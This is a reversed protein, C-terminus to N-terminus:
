RPVIPRSPWDSARRAVANPGSTDRFAKTLAPISHRAGAAIVVGSFPTFIRTEPVGLGQILYPLAKACTKPSYAFLETVARRVGGDPDHIATVAASFVPGDLPFRSLEAVAYCRIAPNSDHLLSLRHEVTNVTPAALFGFRLLPFPEDVRPYEWGSFAEWIPRNMADLRRVVCGAQYCSKPIDTVFYSGDPRRHFSADGHWSPFPTPPDARFWSVSIVKREADCDIIHRYCDLFQWGGKATRRYGHILGHKPHATTKQVLAGTQNYELFEAFHAQSGTIVFLRGNPLLEACGVWNAFPPLAYRATGDSGILRVEEGCEQDARNKKGWLLVLTPGGPTARTQDLPCDQRQQKWWQQWCAYCADREKKTCGRLLRNPADKGAAWRLLEEAQWSVPVPSQRVLAILPPIANRDDAALLGQAARLRVLYDPDALARQRVKERQAATGRRGIICAAVTRRAPAPEGLARVLAGPMEQNPGIFRDLAYYIEEEVDADKTHPLLALFVEFAERPKRAALVRVVPLTWDEEVSKAVADLCAKARRATEPDAASTAKRLAPLAAPGLVALTRSAAEREDFSNSGLKAILGAAHAVADLEGCRVRLFTLLDANDTALHAHGTLFAEAEALPRQELASALTAYLIFIAPSALM